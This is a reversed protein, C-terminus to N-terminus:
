AIMLASLQLINALLGGSQRRPREKRRRMSGATMRCHIQRIIPVDPLAPSPAATTM